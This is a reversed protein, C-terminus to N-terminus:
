VEEAELEKEARDLASMAKTREEPYKVFVWQILWPANHMRIAFTVWEIDEGRQKKWSVKFEEWYKGFMGAMVDHNYVGSQHSEIHKVLRDCDDKIAKSVRSYFLESMRPKRIKHSLEPKKMSKGCHLCDETEQHDPYYESGCHPCKMVDLGNM